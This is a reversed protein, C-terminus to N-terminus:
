KADICLGGENKLMYRNHAIKDEDWYTEVYLQKQYHKVKGLIDDLYYRTFM